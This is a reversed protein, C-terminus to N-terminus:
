KCLQNQFMTATLNQKSKNTDNLWKEYAIFWPDLTNNNVFQNRKLVEVLHYLAERDEYYDVGTMYIGARKGYKPFYQKLKENFQIPYSDQNLYWLPDFNRELQFVAWANICLLTATIILIVVKTSIKTIRPGIYNEFIIQQTNRQSCENPKWNLRPRCFCGDKRAELRKEDYVLCSIFFTIEYVYLFMIGLTAFVYFSGLCPMISTVGFAFATMNTFSTVTISM